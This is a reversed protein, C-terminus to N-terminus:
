AAFKRRRGADKMGVARVPPAKAGLTSRYSEERQRARARASDPHEEMRAERRAIEIDIAESLLLLEDDELTRMRNIISQM